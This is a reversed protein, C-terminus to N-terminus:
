AVGSANVREFLAELADSETGDLCNRGDLICLFKKSKVNWRVMFALESVFDPYEAVDEADVGNEALTTHALADSPTFTV